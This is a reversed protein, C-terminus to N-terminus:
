VGSSLLAQYVETGALPDPVPVTPTKELFAKPTPATPKNSKITFKIKDIRKGIKEHAKFTVSIDTHKKLEVLAPSLV